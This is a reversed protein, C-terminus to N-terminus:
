LLTLAVKYCELLRTLPLCGDQSSNCLEAGLPGPPPGEHSQSGLVRCAISSIKIEPWQSLVRSGGGPWNWLSGCIELWLSRYGSCGECFGARWLRGEHQKECFWRLESSREAKGGAQLCLSKTELPSQLRTELWCAPPRVSTGAQLWGGAWGAQGARPWARAAAQCGALPRAALSCVRGRGGPGKRKAPQAGAEPLGEAATAMAVSGRGRRRKRRRGRALGRNRGRATAARARGRSLRTVGGGERLAPDRGSPPAAQHPSVPTPSRPPPLRRQPTRHPEATLWHCLDTDRRYRRTWMQARHWWLLASLCSWRGGVAPGAAKTMLSSTSSCRDRIYGSTVQRTQVTLWQGGSQTRDWLRKRM